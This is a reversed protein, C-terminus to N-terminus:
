APPHKVDAGYQPAQVRELTVLGSGMMRAAFSM